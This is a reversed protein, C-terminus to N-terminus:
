LKNDTLLKVCEMGEALDRKLEEPPDYSMPFPHEPLRRDCKEPETQPNGKIRKCQWFKLWQIVLNLRGIIREKELLLENLKRIQQTKDLNIEEVRAKEKYSETLQKNLVDIDEHLADFRKDYHSSELDKCEVDKILVDAEKAKAEAEKAKVEAEKEKAEAEKLKVDAEKERKAAKPFIIAGIVTTLGFLGSLVTTLISTWDM